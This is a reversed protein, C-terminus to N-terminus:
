SYRLVGCLGSVWGNFMGLAVHNPDMDISVVDGAVALSTQRGSCAKKDERFLNQVIFSWDQSVQRCSSVSLADLHAFIHDLVHEMNRMALGLVIDVSDVALTSWDRPTMTHM